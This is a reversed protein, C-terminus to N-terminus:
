VHLNRCACQGWRITEVPYSKTVKIFSSSSGCSCSVVSLSAGKAVHDGRIPKQRQLATKTYTSITVVWISLCGPSRGYLDVRANVTVGVVLFGPPFYAFDDHRSSSATYVPPRRVLISKLRKIDYGQGLGSRVEDRWDWKPRMLVVVAQTARAQKRTFLINASRM